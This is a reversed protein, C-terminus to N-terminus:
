MGAKLCIITIIGILITTIVMITVFKKTTFATMFQIKKSYDLNIRKESIRIM